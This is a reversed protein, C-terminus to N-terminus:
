RFLGSLAAQDWPSVVVATCNSDLSVTSPDETLLVIKGNFQEQEELHRVLESGTTDPLNQEIFIHSCNHDRKLFELATKADTVRAWLKEPQSVLKTLVSCRNEAGVYLWGKAQSEMQSSYVRSMPLSIKVIVSSGTRWKEIRGGFNEVLLRAVDFGLSASDGMDAQIENMPFSLLQEYGVVAPGGYMQTVVTDAGEKYSQIIVRDDRHVADLVYGLLNAFVRSYPAISGFVKLARFDTEIERRAGRRGLLVLSQEFVDTLGVSQVTVMSSRGVLRLNEMTAAIRRVHERAIGLHRNEKNGSQKDLEVLLDLRGQVITISDNLDMALMASLRSIGDIQRRSDLTRDRALRATEDRFSVQYHVGHELLVTSVNLTVTRGDKLRLRKEDVGNWDVRMLEEAVGRSAAEFLEFFYSETMRERSSRFFELARRNLALTIGTASIILCPDPSTHFLLAERQPSLWEKLLKNKRSIDKTM